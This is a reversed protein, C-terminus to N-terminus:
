LSKRRGIRDGWMLIVFTALAMGILGSAILFGLQFPSLGLFAVYLGYTVGILSVAVSRVFGGSIIYVADKNM